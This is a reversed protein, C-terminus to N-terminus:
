VVVKGFAKEQRFQWAVIKQLRSICNDLRPRSNAYNGWPWDLTYWICLLEEDSAQRSCLRELLMDGCVNERAIHRFVAFYEPHEDSAFLSSQLGNTWAPNALLIALAEWQLEEVRLSVFEPHRWQERWWQRATSDDVVDDIHMPSAM